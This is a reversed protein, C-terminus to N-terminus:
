SRVGMVGEMWKKHIYDFSTDRVATATYIIGDDFTSENKDRRSSVITV